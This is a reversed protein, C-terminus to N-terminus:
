KLDIRELDVTITYDQKWGEMLEMLQNLEARPTTIGVSSGTASLM